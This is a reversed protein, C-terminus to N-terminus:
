DKHIILFPLTELVQKPRWLEHIPLFSRRTHPAPLGDWGPQRHRNWRGQHQGHSCPLQARVGLTSGLSFAVSQGPSVTVVCCPPRVPGSSPLCLCIKQIDAAPSLLDGLDQKALMLIQTTWARLETGVRLLSLPSAWHCQWSLGEPEVFYIRRQHLSIKLFKNKEPKEQILTLLLHGLRKNKQIFVFIAAAQWTQQSISTIIKLQVTLGFPVRYCSISLHLM